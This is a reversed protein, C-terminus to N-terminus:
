STLNPSTILDHPHPPRMFSILVKYFLSSLERAGLVCCFPLMQSGPLLSDGSVCDTLVM